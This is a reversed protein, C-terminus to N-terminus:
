SKDAALNCRLERGDYDNGSEAKVAKEAASNTAMKIFAIGRSKGQENLLMKVANVTGYKSFRETLSDENASWPM